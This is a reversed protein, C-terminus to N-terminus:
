SAALLAASSSAPRKLQNLYHRPSKWFQTIRCLTSPTVFIQRDTCFPQCPHFDGASNPPHWPKPLLSLPPAAQGRQASQQHQHRGFDTTHASPSLLLTPESQPKPHVRPKAARRFSLCRTTGARKTFTSSCFRAAVDLVGAGERGAGVACCWWWWCCVDSQGRRSHKLSSWARRLSVCAAASGSRHADAHVCCLPCCRWFVPIGLYTARPM